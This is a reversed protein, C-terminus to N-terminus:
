KKKEKDKPREDEEVNSFSLIRGDLTIVRVLLRVIQTWVEKMGVVEGKDNLIPAREALKEVKSASGRVVHPEEGPPRVVGNLKGAALLQAVHGTYLPLPPPDPDAEVPDDFIDLLPSDEVEAVMEADTMRVKSFRPPHWGRPVTWTRVGTGAVPLRPAKDDMRWLQMVKLEGNWQAPVDRARRRAIYVVENYARVAPPFLYLGADEFTSDLYEMFTTNNQIAGFPLVLVLVGGPRLKFAANRAFTHEQRGGGGLEDDFPPNCYVLGFRGASIGRDDMFSAPAMVHAEDGLEAVSMEGRKEDLEVAYVNGPPIGLGDRIQRIAKGDGACPDLVTFADPKDPGDEPPGTALRLHHLIGAVAPPKAAYFGLKAQAALRM